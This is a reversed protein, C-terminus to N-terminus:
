KTAEQLVKCYPAHANRANQTHNIPRGCWECPVKSPKASRTKAPRKTGSSRTKAPILSREVMAGLVLALTIVLSMGYAVIGNKTKMAMYNSTGLLAMEALVLLIIVAWGWRRVRKSKVSVLQNAGFAVLGVIGIATPIGALYADIGDHLQRFATVWLWGQGWGALVILFHMPKLKM